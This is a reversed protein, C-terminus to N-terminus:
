RLEGREGLRAVVQELPATALERAPPFRPCDDVTPAAAVM